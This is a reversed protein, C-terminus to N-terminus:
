GDVIEEITKWRLGNNTIDDIFCVIFTVYRRGLMNSLRFM